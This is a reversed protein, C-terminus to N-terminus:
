AHEPEGSGIMQVRSAVVNLWYIVLTDNDFIASIFDYDSAYHAGQWVYAYRQWIERRIVYASCGIHAKVPAGGWNPPDPLIGYIGHDMRVMIVDPDLAEAVEKLRSVFLPDICEDDDDLIWIYNGTLGWAVHFMNGNAWAVGRAKGDVIMSQTFDQDTQALLSDVNRRLMQPRHNATRTIVELFAM